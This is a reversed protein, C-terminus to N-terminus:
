EGHFVGKFLESKDPFDSSKALEISHLAKADLLGEMDAIEKEGVELELLKKRQTLVPDREYWKLFDERSRYGLNFDERVGVHELYRYCKLRLFCPQEKEKMLEIASLTLQHIEEADTTDAELVVCNYKSVLETISNYGQREKSFINVALDNDECVFLLPIHRLCAFNLSEWFAGSDTAGDGFFSAVTANNKRARNAFAVGMAVSITSAVVASACIFGDEPSSLHMSGAKGQATGSVKGYMEGFFKDTNGTKALFLAHSRYYGVVIGQPGLAQCVGVSIAEEGMSMHMPTKMGNDAYNEIILNEAKRILYVKAYLEKNLLVRSQFESM